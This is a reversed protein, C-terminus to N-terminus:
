SPILQYLQSNSFTPFPLSFTWFLFFLYFTQSITVNYVHYIFSPIFSWRLSSSDKLISSALNNMVRYFALGSFVNLVDHFSARPVTSCRFDWFLLFSLFVLWINTLFFLITIINSCLTEPEVGLQPKETHLKCTRGTYAHTRELCEPKRGGDLFM